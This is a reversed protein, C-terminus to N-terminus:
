GLRVIQEDLEALAQELIQRYRPNPASRVQELIRSRSLKLGERHSEIEKQEPTLRRRDDGSSLSAEQQQLEVSKSEWGRAVIFNYAAQALGTSEPGRHSYVRLRKLERAQSEAREGSRRSSADAALTRRATGGAHSGYQPTMERIRSKSDFPVGPLYSVDIFDNLIYRNEHAVFQGPAADDQCRLECSGQWAHWATWYLQLLNQNIQNHVRNFCHSRGCGPSPFENDCRCLFCITDDNLNLIRSRSYPGLKCVVDKFWEKSPLRFADSHPTISWENSLRTGHCRKSVRVGRSRSTSGQTTESRGFLCIASAMPVLSTVTFTWRLWSMRFLPAEDSASRTLIPSFITDRRM